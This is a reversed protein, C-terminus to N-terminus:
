NTAYLMVTLVKNTMMQFLQKCRGFGWEIAIRHGSMVANWDREDTTHNRTRRFPTILQDDLAFGSDSYLVFQKDPFM